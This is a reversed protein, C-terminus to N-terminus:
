ALDSINPITFKARKTESLDNKNPNCEKELNQPTTNIDFCEWCLRAFGKINMEGNYLPPEIFGQRILETFLYGFQSPTGTWKIKKMKLVEAGTGTGSKEIYGLELEIFKLALDFEQLNILNNDKLSTSIKDQVSHKFLRDTKCRELYDIKEKVTELETLRNRIVELEDLSENLYEWRTKDFENEYM